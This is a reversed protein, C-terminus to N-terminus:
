KVAVKRGGVIYIGRSLGTLDNDERLKRGYLDYVGEVAAPAKEEVAIEEVGSLAVRRVGNTSWMYLNDLYFTQGNGGDFKFQGLRAFDVGGFESVAIDFSNWRNAELHRTVRAGDFTPHLAIPYITLRISMESVVLRDIM